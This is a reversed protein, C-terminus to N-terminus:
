DGGVVDEAEKREADDRSLYQKIMAAVDGVSERVLRRVEEAGGPGLRKQLDDGLQKLRRAIMLMAQRVVKRGVVEERKLRLEHEKLKATAERVRELAPSLGKEPELEPDDTVKYTPKEDLKKKVWADVVSRAHYRLESGVRKMASSPVLPKYYEVFAQTSVDLIAAMEKQKYWGRDREAV